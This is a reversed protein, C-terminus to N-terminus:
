AGVNLAAGVCYLYTGDSRFSFHDKAGATATPTLSSVGKYNAGWALSHSTTYTVWLTYYAGNILNTPNAVTFASGNVDATPAQINTADWATNHTLANGSDPKQTKTFTNVVDPRAATKYTMDAMLFKNAAADGSGPAPVLGKTGGSGSDGVANNLLATAQTATLDEVDGTSASTRGKFTATAVQALKANTVANAAIGATAITGFGLSTGSRRLVEGDNVAAVSAGVGASNASRAFVSLADLNQFKAYTIAADAMGATVITGFDIATGSRRLVHGDVTAVIDAYNATANGTVGLLSLAPGQALKALTVNNNAIKATTVNGDAIKDTTVNADAIKATTVNADLIKATTVADSAIGGAVVQGFGIATGSRRLVLDDSAATIDAVNGTTNASRGIVSLGASQRLKANTVANDEIAATDVSDDAPNHAVHEIASQVDSAPIEPRPTFGEGTARGLNGIRTKLIM